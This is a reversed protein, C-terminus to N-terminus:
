GCGLNANECGDTGLVQLPKFTHLIYGLGFIFQNLRQWGTSECNEIAVVLDTSFKRILPFLAAM